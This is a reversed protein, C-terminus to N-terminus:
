SFLTLEQLNPQKCLTINPNINWKPPFFLNFNAKPTSFKQKIRSNDSLLEPMKVRLYKDTECFCNQLDLLTPNRGFLNKFKNQEYKEQYHELNDQTFKIADECTYKELDIFCKKIGRIAGIGAKVFSNEDFDIATSYNFDIAYQYSLFGGLFACGNLINYVEEFSKANIIKDFKRNTIFEDKVMNLWKEHKSKLHNYNQHTGTMMYAGNFIPQVKILDALSKSIQTPNFNEVTLAGIEQELFEWTDIKNFIKFVIIRLLIDEAKANKNKPNYIVDKILYQSVRDLARYVNTFKNNSLIPDKSYPYNQGDYRRWFIDMREQIFYFYHKYADERVKM